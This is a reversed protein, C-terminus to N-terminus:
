VMLPLGILCAGSCHFFGRQKPYIPSSVWNQPTQLFGDYPDRNFLCYKMSHLLPDQPQPSKRNKSTLLRSFYPPKWRICGEFFCVIDAGWFILRCFPMIVRLRLGGSMWIWRFFIPSEAWLFLQVYHSLPHYSTGALSPCFVVVKKGLLLAAIPDKCLISKPTNQALQLPEPFTTM